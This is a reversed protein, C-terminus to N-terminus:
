RFIIFRESAPTCGYYLVACCVQRAAKVVSYKMPGFRRLFLALQRPRVRESAAARAPDGRDFAYRLVMEVPTASPVRTM